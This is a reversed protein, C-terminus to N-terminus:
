AAPARDSIVKLSVILLSCIVNVCGAAIVPVSGTLAGYSILLGNFVVGVGYAGLSIAQLHATDNRNRLTRVVQPLWMAIAGASALYGVFEIM